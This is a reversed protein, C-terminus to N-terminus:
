TTATGKFHWVETPCNVFDIATALDSGQLKCVTDDVEANQSRSSLGKQRYLFFPILQPQYRCGPELVLFYLQM